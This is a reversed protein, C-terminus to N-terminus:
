GCSIFISYPKELIVSKLSGHICWCLDYLTSVVCRLLISRTRQFQVFTMVDSSVIVENLLLGSVTNTVYNRINICYPICL